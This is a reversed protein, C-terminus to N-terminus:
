RLDLTPVGVVRGNVGRVCSANIGSTVDGVKEM